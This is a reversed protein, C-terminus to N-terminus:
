SAGHAHLSRSQLADRPACLPMRQRRAHASERHGHVCVARWVKFLPHAAPPARRERAAMWRLATRQHPYLELRMGPVATEAVTRLCRCTCACMALDRAGLSSLVASLMPADLEHLSAAGVSAVCGSGGGDSGSPECGAACHGADVTYRGMPPLPPDANCTPLESFCSMLSFKAAGEGGAAAGAATDEAELLQLLTPLPAGVPLLAGVVAVAHMRAKPAYADGSREWLDPPVHVDLLVALAVDCPDRGRKRGVGVTAAGRDPFLRASFDFKDAM